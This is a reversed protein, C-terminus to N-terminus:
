LCKCMFIYFVPLVCGEISSMEGFDLQNSDLKFPPHLISKLRTKKRKLRM